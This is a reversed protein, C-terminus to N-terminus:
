RPRASEVVSIVGCEWEVAAAMEMMAMNMAGFVLCAHLADVSSGYPRKQARGGEGIKGHLDREPGLHMGIAATEPDQCAVRRPGAGIQFDGDDEHGEDAALAIQSLLDTRLAVLDLMGVGPGGLV